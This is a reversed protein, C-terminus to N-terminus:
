LLPFSTPTVSKGLDAYSGESNSFKAMQTRILTSWESEGDLESGLLMTMRTELIRRRSSPPSATRGFFINGQLQGIYNTHKGPHTYDYKSSSNGRHRGRGTRDYRNMGIAGM